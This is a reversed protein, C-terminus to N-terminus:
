RNQYEMAGNSAIGPVASGSNLATWLSHRRLIQLKQGGRGGKGDKKILTLDLPLDYAKVRDQSYEKKRNTKSEFVLTVTFYTYILQGFFTTIFALHTPSHSMKLDDCLCDRSAHFFPGKFIKHMLPTKSSFHM